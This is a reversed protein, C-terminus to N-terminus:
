KRVKITSKIIQKGVYAANLVDNKGLFIEVGLKKQAMNRTSFFWPQECLAEFTRPPVSKNARVLKAMKLDTAIWNALKKDKRKLLWLKIFDM